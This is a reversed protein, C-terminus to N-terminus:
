IVIDTESPPLIQEQFHSTARLPEHEWLFPELTVLGGFAGQLREMVRLALMREQGVDGPSSLFVKLSLSPM